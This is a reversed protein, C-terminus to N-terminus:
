LELCSFAFNEFRSYVSYIKLVHYKIWNVFKSFSNELILSCLVSFKVSVAIMNLFLSIGDAAMAFVSFNKQSRQRLTPLKASNSSLRVNRFFQSLSSSTYSSNRSRIDMFCVPSHPVAHRRHSRNLSFNCLSSSSSGATLRVSDAAM